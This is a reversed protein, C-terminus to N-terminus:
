YLGCNRRHSTLLLINTTGSLSNYLLYYFLHRTTPSSVIFIDNVILVKNRDGTLVIMVKMRRMTEAIVITTFANDVVCTSLLSPTGEEQSAEEVSSGSAM